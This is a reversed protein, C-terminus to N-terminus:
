SVGLKSAKPPLHSMTSICRLGTGTAVVGIGGFPACACRKLHLLVHRFDGTGQKIPDVKV